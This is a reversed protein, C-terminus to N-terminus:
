NFRPSPNSLCKLVQFHTKIVGDLSKKYTCISTSSCPREIKDGLASCICIHYLMNALLPLVFLLATVVEIERWGEVMELAWM